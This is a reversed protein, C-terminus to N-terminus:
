TGQFTLIRLSLFSFLFTFFASWSAHIYDGDGSRIRRLIVRTDDYLVVNHFRNKDHNHTFHWITPAEALLKAHEVMARRRDKGMKKVFDAVGVGKMSDQLSVRTVFAMGLRRVVCVSMSPGM